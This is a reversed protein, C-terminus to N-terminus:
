EWSGFLICKHSLILSIGESRGSESCEVFCMVIGVSSSMIYWSVKLEKAQKKRDGYKLFRVGHVCVCMFVCVCVCVCVCVSVCVCLRVCMFVCVLILNWKAGSFIHVNCSTISSSQLKLTCYHYGLTCTCINSITFPLWYHLCEWVAGNSKSTKGKRKYSTLGLINTQVM